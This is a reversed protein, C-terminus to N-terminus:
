KQKSSKKTRKKISKRKMHKRSKMSKMSKKPNRLFLQKEYIPYPGNHGMIIREKENSVSKIEKDQVVNGNVTAFEKYYNQMIFHPQQLRIKPMPM